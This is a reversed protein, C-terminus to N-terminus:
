EISDLYQEMVNRACPSFKDWIHTLSKDAWSKHYHSNNPLYGCDFDDPRADPNGEFETDVVGDSDVTYATGMPHIDDIYVDDLNYKGHRHDAGFAHGIEHWTMARREWSNFNIGAYVLCGDYISDDLEIKSKRGYGWRARRHPVVVVDGSILAGRDHYFEVVDELFQIEGDKDPDYEDDDIGHQDEWNYINGYNASHDILQNDLWNAANSCEDEIDGKNYTATEAVSIVWKSVM